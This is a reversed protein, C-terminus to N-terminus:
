TSSIRAQSKLEIEDKGFLFTSEIDKERCAEILLRSETIPKDDEGLSNDLIHQLWPEQGMAYIHCRKCGFQKALLWAEEFNCGRALRSHDLEREPMERLLPGYVWSLPAGECEMAVFLTDVDGTEQHIRKIMAPEMNCSDAMVLISQGLLHLSWVNKSSVALDHHEGLFPLALLTGGPIDLRDFDRVERVRPFGMDRLALELSPDLVQGDANRGVVVTGVKHRIQILTEPLIHDHHAHTILVYDIHEPLDEYTYRGPQQTTGAYGIIPDTLITVERTEILLTAHGFYRVRVGDGQYRPAAPPKTKTFYSAFLTQEAAPVGLKQALEAPDSAQARAKVLEDLAESAFPIPLELSQREPLRPTSLVFPRTDEGNALSLKISQYRSLGMERYLLPEIIRFTPRHERDYLLEVMGRLIPPTQAYFPQLAHGRVKQQLISALEDIAEALEILTKAQERTENLLAEVEKVRKGGLDLFLGGKLNPDRVAAMHLMPSRIYSAMANFYRNKLNLAATAPSLLHNWAYWHCFLPEIILNPKLYHTTM